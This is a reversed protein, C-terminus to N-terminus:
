FMLKDLGRALGRLERVKRAALLTGGVFIEDSTQMDHRIVLREGPLGFIVECSASHGPLRVAHVRTGHIDAGRAGKPGIMAEPDHVYSPRRVESLHEALETATGSPADPKEAKCYELVEWHPVYQAALRAFHQMLAATIAFNGTAVGVGQAKAMADIEDRDGGSLGSTGIVVPIRRELALMVHRKIATPHTYDILVDPGRSLAAVIDAEIKIGVAAAGAATGADQGAARRAVASDLTFDKSALIARALCRGVGGTAGALCVKIVM